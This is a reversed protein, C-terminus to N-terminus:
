NRWCDPATPMTERDDANLPLDSDFVLIPKGLNSPGNINLATISRLATFVPRYLHRSGRGNQAFVAVPPIPCRSMRGIWASPSASRCRWIADIVAARYSKLETYVSSVFVNLRRPAPTTM